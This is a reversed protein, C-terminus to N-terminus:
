SRRQHCEGSTPVLVVVRSPFPGFVRSRGELLDIIHNVERDGLEGSM